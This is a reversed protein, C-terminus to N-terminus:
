TSYLVTFFLLLRYVQFLGYACFTLAVGKALAPFLGDKYFRRSAFFLYVGLGGFELLTAIYDIANMSVQHGTARSGVFILAMVVLIALLWLLWWAYVHLSFILHESFYHRKRFNLIALVVALMPALVLILSKAHLHAVREFRETFEKFQEPNARSLHKTALRQDILRTAATRLFVNSEFIHLPPALIELGTLPQLVFFLLNCVFFIQLPSMYPKRRGLFFDATLKGPKTVLTKLTVFIKSDVHFFAEAAEALVHALSFDHDGRRKEGCHACFHGSAVHGCTICTWSDSSKTSEPLEQLTKDM